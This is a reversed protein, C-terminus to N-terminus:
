NPLSQYTPLFTPLCTPLCTPLYTLLYTPLFCYTTQQYSTSQFMSLYLTLYTTHPSLLWKTVQTSSSIQFEACSEDDDDSSYCFHSRPLSIRSRQLFRRMRMKRKRKISSRSLNQILVNWKIKTKVPEM